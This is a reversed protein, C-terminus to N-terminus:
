KIYNNHKQVNDITWKKLNLVCNKPSQIRDGDERLLRGLQVWDISYEKDGPRINDAVPESEPSM